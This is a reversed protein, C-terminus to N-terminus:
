LNFLIGGENLPILEAPFSHIDKYIIQVEFERILPNSKIFLTLRKRVQSDMIILGELGYDKDDEFREVDALQNAGSPKLTTRFIIKGRVLEAETSESCVSDTGFRHNLEVYTTGKRLSRIM